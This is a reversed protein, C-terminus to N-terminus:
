RDDIPLWIKGCREPYCESTDFFFIVEGDPGIAYQFMVPMSHLGAAESDLYLKTPYSQM